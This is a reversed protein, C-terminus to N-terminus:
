KRNKKRKVKKLTIYRKKSNRDRKFKIGKAELLPSARKIRASLQNASKPWARSKITSSPVNGELEELLKSATGDWHDYYEMFSQIALAVADAELALQETESRNLDYYKIFAKKNFPLAKAAAAIWKAFDAMRPTEKLKTHKYKKLAMSAADLLVGLLKPHLKNFRRRLQKETKRKKKRIRPLDISICRDMLDHFNNHLAIGNLILPRSASLIIEGFDTYLKRTSHGSGTAIRCLADATHRNM